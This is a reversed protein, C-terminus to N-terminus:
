RQPVEIHLLTLAECASYRVNNGWIQNAPRDVVDVMANPSLLRFRGNLYLLRDFNEIHLLQATM